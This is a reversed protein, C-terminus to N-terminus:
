GVPAVALAMSSPLTEGAGGHHVSPGQRGGLPVMGHPEGCIGQCDAWGKEHVLLQEADPNQVHGGHQMAVMSFQDACDAWTITVLLELLNDEAIHPVTELLEPLKGDATHPVTM